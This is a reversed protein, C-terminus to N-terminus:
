MNPCHKWIEEKYGTGAKVEQITEKYELETVLERSPWTLRRNYRNIKWSM